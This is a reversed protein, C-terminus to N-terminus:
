VVESKGDSQGICSELLAVANVSRKRFDYFNELNYM